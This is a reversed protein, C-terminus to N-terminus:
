PQHVHPHEIVEDHSARLDHGHRLRSQKSGIHPFGEPKEWLPVAGIIHMSSLSGGPTFVVIFM